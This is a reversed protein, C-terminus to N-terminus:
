SQILSEKLDTNEQEIDRKAQESSFITDKM